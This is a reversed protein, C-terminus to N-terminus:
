PSRGFGWKGNHFDILFTGFNSPDSPDTKDVMFLEMVLVEVNGADPLRKLAFNLASIGFFKNRQMETIYERVGEDAEQTLPLEAYLLDRLVQIPQALLNASNLLKVFESAKLVANSHAKLFAFAQLYNDSAVKDIRVSKNNGQDIIFIGERKKDSSLMSMSSDPQFVGTEVERGKSQEFSSVPSFVITLDSAIRQQNTTSLSTDAFGVPYNNGAIRVQVTQAQGLFPLCLLVVYHVKKM